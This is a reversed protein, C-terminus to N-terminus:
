VLNDDIKKKKNEKEEKLREQEAEDQAQMFKIIEDLNNHRDEVINLFFMSPIQKKELWKKIHLWNSDSNHTAAFVIVSTNSDICSQMIKNIVNIKGSGKRACIFINAYLMPVLNYGLINHENYHPTPIVDITENNIKKLQLSLNGGYDRKKKNNM